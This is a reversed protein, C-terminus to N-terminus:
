WNARLTPQCRESALHDVLDHLMATAIPQKAIQEALSFTTMIVRGAGYRFQVTHVAPHNIWGGVQGALFDEHYTSQDAPLGTLTYTPMVKMFPLTLPNLGDHDLRRHVGPRLWSWATM